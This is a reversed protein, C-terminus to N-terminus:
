LLTMGNEFHYGRLFEEASQPARGPRQLKTISLTERRNEATGGCAIDLSIDRSVITGSRQDHSENKLTSMLAKIRVPSGGAPNPALFWAGPFPSLGRIHWDLERAPRSWDIQAEDASIKNAYTIGEDSQPTAVLSDRGLAALARPMMEAGIHSLRDHLSGCSDHLQIATNESLLVAGTDLGTEMQMLQVGTEHDGAMIARHIPAAGRWRPLLSAHINLCGYRPADLIAKPLILGYAVVIAVDLGLEAFATIDESAKFNVPTRVELGYEESIQHIPSPRLKKGRGAPRPPQTYVAAVTHGDAILASLIPVSFDPTGMFAIRM